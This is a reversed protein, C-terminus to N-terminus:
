QKEMFERALRAAGEKDDPSLEGELVLDTLYRTVPKLWPGPGRGFLEMLERGDLPSRTKAIEEREGMEEVRRELDDMLELFHPAAELSGARVDARALELVEDLSVLVTDDKRLTCDRILRRVAGDSFTSEYHIPRMHLRVMFATKEVDENSYRLRKMATHTLEVGLRDHEPFMLKPSTTMSPPKGVDHFLAARRLLAERRTYAMVLLTHELVDARHYASPQEVGKMAAIEPSIHEMLGTDVLLRVGIDPKESVLILELEDRRRERSIGALHDAQERIVNLLGTDIEFSLQAAFRVARMMRLPDEAMRPEPPGPTRILGSELDEAGDFPDILAGPEPAIRLAMANITFDRRSLDEEIEEIHEVEPHRSGPEYQETRFTTIEFHYDGSVLGVTGFKEGITFISGLGELAEKVETPPLDTALDMDKCEAGRLRDRVWGGVVLLQGGAASIREAVEEAKEPIDIPGVPGQAM